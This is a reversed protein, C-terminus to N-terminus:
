SLKTGCSQVLLSVFPCRAAGNDAFFRSLVRRQVVRGAFITQRDDRM